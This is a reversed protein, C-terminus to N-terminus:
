PLAVPQSSAGSTAIVVPAGTATNTPLQVNVQYLGAFDPALGAFSQAATSGGITVTLPAVLTALPMRPAPQGTTPTNSTPGLGTAWITANTGARTIAFIEPQANVIPVEVPASTQGNATIVVTARSASTLEYPVQFNIQEQGNVSAVATLPVRIGNITVSTGALEAPLPFATSQIIGPLSTIGTGFITALSGPSIGSGFSAANVIGNATTAPAGAAILYIEGGDYNALYLEGAEDEGFASITRGSALVLRNDWASGSPQVAWLNGSGFDGYLYFGRLAPYRSGRYVYGGTVSVGLQRTYELIPMTLGTRDCTGSAPLCQLGEMRNWGYNVGGRSSAPQFNVEEARNQGVDAIWLDRTERDFTYRWPNRLGTAWIEPRYASDNRFPNDAPIAYPRKAPSSM